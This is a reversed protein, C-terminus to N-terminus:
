NILKYFADLDPLYKEKNLNKSKSIIKKGINIEDGYVERTQSFFKIIKEEYMYCYQKINNM